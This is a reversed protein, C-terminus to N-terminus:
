RRKRLWSWLSRKRAASAVPLQVISYLGSEPDKALRRGNQRLKADVTVALRNALRHSEESYSNM